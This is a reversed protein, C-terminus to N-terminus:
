GYEFPFTVKKPTGGSERFRLSRFVSKMCDDLDGGKNTSLKRVAGTKPVIRFTVKVKLSRGKYARDLCKTIKNINSTTYVAEQIEWDELPDIYEGDAGVGMNFEAVEDGGDGSEASSKPKKRTRRRKRKKRKKAHKKRQKERWEALKKAKEEASANPDFLAGTLEQDLDLALEEAIPVEFVPLKEPASASLKLPVPDPLSLYTLVASTIVVAAGLFAGVGSIKGTTKIQQMRREREEEARRRREERIPIYEIVADKFESVKILKARKQTIMHLVSTDEHIEDEHLLKIVQEVGFPGYDLGDDKQVLWVEDEGGFSGSGSSTELEKASGFDLTQRPASPLGDLAFLDKKKPKESEGSEHKPAPAGAFLDNKPKPFSDSTPRGPPPPSSSAVETEAAAEEAASEEAAAEDESESLDVKPMEQSGLVAAAAAEAANQKPSEVAEKLSAKFDKVSQPRLQAMSITANFLLDQLIDSRGAVVKEIFAEAEEAFHELSTDSLVEATLLGLSYIDASGEATAGPERLEPAIFPSAMFGRELEAKSEHRRVLNSYVLNTVKVRGKHTVYVNRPTLAGHIMGAEHVTQTANCVHAILNYASKFTMVQGKGRREELHQELTEGKLYEMALYLEDGEKALGYLRALNKHKLESYKAVEDRLEEYAEDGPYPINVRKLVMQQSGSEQQTVLYAEGGTSTGLVEVVDFTDAIVDGPAFRSAGEPPADTM